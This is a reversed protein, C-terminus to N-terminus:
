STHPALVLALALALRLVLLKRLGQLVLSTRPALPAQWKRLGQLLSTRLAQLALLAQLRRPAQVAWKHLALAQLRRPAQAFRRPAQAFKRLAQAPWTHLALLARLRRQAQAFWKRLALLGLAL